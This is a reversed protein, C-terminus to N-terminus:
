AFRSTNERSVPMYPPSQMVMKYSNRKSGSKIAPFCSWLKPKHQDTPSPPGGIMTGTAGSYVKKETSEDFHNDVTDIGESLLADEGLSPRPSNEASSKELKAYFVATEKDPSKYTPSKPSATESSSSSDTGKVVSSSSDRSSSDNNAVNAVSRPSNRGTALDLLSPSDKGTRKSQGRTKPSSSNSGSSINQMVNKPTSTDSIPKTSGLTKNNVTKNDIKSTTKIDKSPSVPKTEGASNVSSKQDTNQVSKDDECYDPGTLNTEPLAHISKRLKEKSMDWEESISKSYKKVLISKRRYFDNDEAILCENNDNAVAQNDDQNEETDSSSSSGNEDIHLNDVYGSFDLYFYIKDVNVIAIM